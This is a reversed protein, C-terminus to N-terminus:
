TGRAFDLEVSNGAPDHLFLQVQGAGPVISKHYPIARERLLTEAAAASADCDFAVHDFTTAVDTRRVEQPGAESLHVIPRGGAYLWYGFHGFAPREGLELGVVDCYFDKLADLVDRSARLNVHNLGRATM